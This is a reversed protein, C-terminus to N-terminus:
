PSCPSDCKRSQTKLQQLQISIVRVTQVKLNDAVEMEAGASCVLRILNGELVEHRIKFVVIVVIEAMHDVLELKFPIISRRISERTFPRIIQGLTHLLPQTNHVGQIPSHDVRFFTLQGPWLIAHLSIGM